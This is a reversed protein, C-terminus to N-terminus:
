ALFVKIILRTKNLGLLFLFGYGIPVSGPDMTLDSTWLMKGVSTATPSRSTKKDTIYSTLGRILM